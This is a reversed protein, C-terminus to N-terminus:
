FHNLIFLEFNWLIKGIINLSYGSIKLLIFREFIGALDSFNHFMRIKAQLFVQTGYYYGLLLKM